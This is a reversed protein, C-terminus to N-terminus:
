NGTQSEARLSKLQQPDKLKKSLAKPALPDGRTALVKPEHDSRGRSPTDREPWGSM